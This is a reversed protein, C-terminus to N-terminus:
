PRRLEKQSDVPAIVEIGRARAAEALRNDYTIIGNLEDGLELAAALHLADLSRLSEPDLDAAREFTASPLSLLIVADLVARARQMREPAGRRTARLLETRLLDSSVIETERGNLWSRLAVSGAEAVILKM